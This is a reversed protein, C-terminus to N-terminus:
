LFVTAFSTILSHTVFTLAPLYTVVSSVLCFRITCIIRISIFCPFLSYLGNFVSEKCRSPLSPFLAVWVCTRLSRIDLPCFLRDCPRHLRVGIIASCRTSDLSARSLAFSGHPDKAGRGNREIYMALVISQRIAVCVPSHGDPCCPPSSPSYPCYTPLPLPHYHTPLRPLSGLRSFRGHSIHRPADYWQTAIIWYDLM